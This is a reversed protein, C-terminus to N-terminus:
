SKRGVEASAEVTGAVTGAQLLRGVEVDTLGLLDSLVAETHEGLLPARRVAQRAVASFELPTGPMRYTGVGPQEVDEWMESAVRPDEDVLQRFTQYPGWSVGTGRFASASRTSTASISGRGCSRPSLDRNAFRGSETDLDVDTAERIKGMQAHTGTVDLLARWQRDTLAVVMVHRQDRTVFDHGFAGYLYNGDRRPSDTAGLQAEAVRGLHGTVAFAM